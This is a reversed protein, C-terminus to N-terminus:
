IVKLFHFRKLQESVARGSFKFQAILRFWRGIFIFDDDSDAGAAQVAEIQPRLLARQRHRDLERAGGTAFDGPVNGGSSFIYALPAGSIAHGHL